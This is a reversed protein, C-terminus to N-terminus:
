RQCYWGIVKYIYIPIVMVLFDPFCKRAVYPVGTEVKNPRLVLAYRVRRWQLDFWCGCTALASVRCRPWRDLGCVFLALNVLWPARGSLRIHRPRLPSRTRQLTVDYNFFTGELCMHTAQVPPGPTSNRGRCRTTTPEIELSPSWPICQKHSRKLDSCSNRIDCTLTQHNWNNYSWNRYKFNYIYKLLFFLLGTM